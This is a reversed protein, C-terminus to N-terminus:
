RGSHLCAIGHAVWPLFFQDRSHLALNVFIPTLGTSAHVANNLAFEDLSLFATWSTFSTAYRRFVVILVQNVRKIQDDSEPHAATSM